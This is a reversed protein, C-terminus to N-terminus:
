IKYSNIEYRYIALTFLRLTNQRNYYDHEHVSKITIETNFTHLPSTNFNANVYTVASNSIM